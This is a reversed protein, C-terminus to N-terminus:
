SSSPNGEVYPQHGARRATLSESEGSTIYAADIRLVLKHPNRAKKCSQALATQM